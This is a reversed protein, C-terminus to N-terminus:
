SVSTGLLRAVGGIAEMQFLATAFLGLAVALAMLALMLLMASRPACCASALSRSPASCPAPADAVLFIWRRLPCMSHPPSSQASYLDRVSRVGTVLAGAADYLAAAWRGLFNAPSIWRRAGHVHPSMLRMVHATSRPAHRCGGGDRGINADSRALLGRRPRRPRASECQRRLCPVHQFDCDPSRHRTLGESVVMMGHPLCFSFFFVAGVKVGPATSLNGLGIIFNSASFLLLLAKLRSSSFPCSALTAFPKALGFGLIFARSARRYTWGSASSPSNHSIRGPLVFIPYRWFYTLCYSLSMSLAIISTAGNSTREPRAAILSASDDYIAIAKADAVGPHEDEPM